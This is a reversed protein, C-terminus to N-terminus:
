DDMADSGEEVDSFAAALTGQSAAGGTARLIDEMELTGRERKRQLTRRQRESVVAISNELEAEAAAKLEARENKGKVIRVSSRDATCWACVNDRVSCDDCITHYARNVKLEHCRNCKRSKLLPKYKRYKKKWEVKDYCHSCLNKHVVAYIAKTKKSGKNHRYAFSNQHAPKKGRAGSRKKPM